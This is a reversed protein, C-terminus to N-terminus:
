FGVPYQDTLVTRKAPKFLDDPMDAKFDLFFHYWTAGTKFGNLLSGEGVRTPYWLGGPTQEWQDMLEQRDRDTPPKVAPDAFLLDYRVVAYGRMPDLWFRSFTFTRAPDHSRMDVLRSTVLLTNPPGESPKLNLTEETRDNPQNFAPPYGRMFPMVVQAEGYSCAHAGDTTSVFEFTGRKKADSSGNGEYIAKGDCVSATTFFGKRCAERVWEKKEKNAPVPEELLAAAPGVEIRWRRGKKWVLFAMPFERGPGHGPSLDPPLGRVVIAHFDDFRDRGAEIAAYIRSMDGKPVRDILKADKPVGLAYIDAPGNEPYDFSWEVSQGGRNNMTMSHPLRTQADVIFTMRADDDPRSPIQLRLEYEDWKRGDKETQRRKQDKLIMGSFETKLEADGRFLGQFIEFLQALDKATAPLRYLIKKPPEYRYTIRLRDDFFSIEEESRAGGIARSTSIWFERSQGPSTGRLTGHIWPKAQVAKVVDAWLDSPRLFWVGLAICAAAAAAFGLVAILRSRHPPRQLPSDCRAARDLASRMAAEPVPQQKLREVAARLDGSLEDPSDPRDAEANM